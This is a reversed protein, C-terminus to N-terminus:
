SWKHSKIYFDHHSTSTYTSEPSAHTVWFSTKLNAESCLETHTLESPNQSKRSTTKGKASFVFSLCAAFPLVQCTGARTSISDTSGQRDCSDAAGMASVDSRKDPTHPSEFWLLLDKLLLVTNQLATLPLGWLGMGSLAIGNSSM